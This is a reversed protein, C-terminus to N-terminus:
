KKTAAMGGRVKALGLFLLGAFCLPESMALFMAFFDCAYSVPTLIDLVIGRTDRPRAWTSTGPVSAGWHEVWGLVSVPPLVMCNSFIPAISSARDWVLWRLPKVNSLVLMGMLGWAGSGVWLQLPWFFWEFTQQMFSRTAQVSLECEPLEVVKCWHRLCRWTM